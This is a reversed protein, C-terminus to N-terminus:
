YQEGFIDIIASCLDKMAEIATSEAVKLYEDCQDATMGYALMRIAATVKQLSSLGLKKATDRRQRFNMPDHELVADHIHMFLLRNMRFRLSFMEDSYTCDENFYDKMLNEHALRRDRLIFMRGKRSGGLSHTKGLARGQRQTEHIISAITAGRYILKVRGDDDSSFSSSSTNFQNSTSM